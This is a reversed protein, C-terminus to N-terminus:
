WRSFFTINRITIQISTTSHQKCNIEKEIHVQVSACCIGALLVCVCVREGNGRRVNTHDMLSRRIFVDFLASRVGHASENNSDWKQVHFYISFGDCHVISLKAFANRILTWNIPALWLSPFALLTRSVPPSTAPLRDFHAQMHHAFHWIESKRRANVGNSVRARWKFQARMCRFRSWYYNANQDAVFSHFRVFSCINSCRWLPVISFFNRSIQITHSFIFLSCRVFVVILWM